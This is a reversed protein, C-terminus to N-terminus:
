DPDLHCNNLMQLLLFFANAIHLAGEALSKLVRRKNSFFSIKEPNNQAYIKRKELIQERNAQYWVKAKATDRLYDNYRLEKSRPKERGTARLKKRYLSIKELNKLRYRNAYERYKEPNNLRYKRFYEKRNRKKQM